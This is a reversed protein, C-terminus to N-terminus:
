LTFAVQCQVRNCHTSTSDFNKRHGYDYELGASMFKNITWVVNAAVYDGYRYQDPAVIGKDGTSNLVHSYVANASVKPSIAYNLGGTVGLNRTMQLKGPTVSQVADLNLGNDDQIYSAIGRGYVVNYQVSLPGAVNAMGSLQVGLGTMNRNDSAVNDRYRMPRVLGSLRVHSAGGDWQYQLYLPIAPLCQRIQSTSGNATLATTPAEIGIAGSLNKTFKQQWNANFVTMYPYGNPGEFDITMPEAAGDTFAGTTYGVTLGRYKAYFHYCNFSNNNGMFNGKFFIGISNDTNPLAVFNLYISSSQWGFGIGSKNGPDAPTLSSPVFLVPSSMDGGFDYTMEGLFQAGIGLYFKSDKGVIAFRPLGNDKVGVPANSKMAKEVHASETQDGSIVNVVGEEAVRNDRQAWINFSGAFFIISVLLIKKNM